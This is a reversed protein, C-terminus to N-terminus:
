ARPPPVQDFTQQVIARDESDAIAALAAQAKLYAAEHQHRDGAVCAAHAHITHTFALEWDVSERNLFFNRVDEAYSLAWRGHGLLAHVEALLMSALAHNLETGAHDWHYAATHAADLMERDQAPTRSQLSLAWARNNCEVAFYRHWAVLDDTKPPDSM